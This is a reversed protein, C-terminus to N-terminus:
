KIESIISKVYEIHEKSQPKGYFNLKLFQKIVNEDKTNDPMESYSFLQQNSFAIQSKHSLDSYYNGHLDKFEDLLFGRVANLRQKGDVIDNFALETEGNARMKELETFGRKRVLIKGCDIHQYISEILLQNDEETWVFPRQYHKKVGNKDYIFPNWNTERVKIGDIYYMDIESRKDGIIDLGFIISDFSFNIPRIDGTNEEFPSAGVNLVNRNTIDNKNITYIEKGYGVDITVRIEDDHLSVITCLESNDKSKYLSLAPSRVYIEEGVSLPSNNKADILRQKQESIRKIM